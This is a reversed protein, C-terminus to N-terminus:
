LFSHFASLPEAPDLREVGSFSRLWTLQRKALQRTAVIGKERLTERGHEGDLHQWVQRYGVARMSPSGASLRYNRRLAKVEDILGLQLM